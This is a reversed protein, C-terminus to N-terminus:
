MLIKNAVRVGVASMDCLFNTTVEQEKGRNKVHDFISHEEISEPFAKLMDERLDKILDQRKTEILAKKGLTEARQYAAKIAVEFGTDIMQNLVIIEIPTTM